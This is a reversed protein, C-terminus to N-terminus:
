ARPCREFPRTRDFLYRYTVHRKWPEARVYHECMRMMVPNFDGIWSLELDTYQITGADHRELTYRVLQRIMAAEIGKGQFEAAVGFILGSLRNIKKRKLGWLLQLKQRLGFKGGFPKILQNIDPLMIFFGVATGEHYAFFLLDPDIIPGMTRIMEHAGAQSMPKIGEIRAWGSNYVTCFDRAMKEPNKPDFTRFEYAPNNCLRDAKATVAPPLEIGTYFPRRYTTQNFYNQFGYAEFLAAYYPRAYPMGYLPEHFGDVLLGWWQLRDGFNVPGDMAQMGHAALWDRSADFLLNAVTQNDIAEFFGCGGTPQRELAAKEPHFFAGIRGVITKTAVEEVMWRIARGAELLHNRKPDFVGEIDQALPEVWHADQAYLARTMTHFLKIHRATRVEILQYKPTPVQSM